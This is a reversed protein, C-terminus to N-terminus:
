WWTKRQHKEDANRHAALKKQGEVMYNQQQTFAVAAIGGMFQEPNADGMGSKHKEGYKQEIEGPPPQQPRQLALLPPKRGMDPALILRRISGSIRAAIM